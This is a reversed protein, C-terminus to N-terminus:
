EPEHIRWDKIAEDITSDRTGRVVFYAFLCVAFLVGCAVAAVWMGARTADSIQNRGSSPLLLVGVLASAGVGLFMAAVALWLPAWGEKAAELKEICRDWQKRSLSVGPEKRAQLTLGHDVLVEKSSQDPPQAAM